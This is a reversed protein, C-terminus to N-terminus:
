RPTDRSEVAAGLGVTCLKPRGSAARLCHDAGPAGNIHLASLVLRPRRRGHWFPGNGRRSCQVRRPHPRFRPACAFGARGLPWRPAPRDKMSAMTVSGRHHRQPHGHMSHDPIPRDAPTTSDHRGKNSHWGHATPPSASRTTGASLLLVVVTAVTVTRGPPETGAARCALDARGDCPQRQAESAWDLLVDVPRPDHLEAHRPNVPALSPNRQRYPDNVGFSSRLASPRRVPFSRFGIVIAFLVTSTVPAFRPM